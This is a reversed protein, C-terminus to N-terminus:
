NKGNNGGTSLYDEQLQEPLQSRLQWYLQSRLQMDLNNM